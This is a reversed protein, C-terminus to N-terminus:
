QTEHKRVAGRRIKHVTFPHIEFRRAIDKYYEKSHYIELVQETTLKCCPHIEGMSFTGQNIADIMNQSKTGYCLNGIRNDLGNGNIHRVEIGKEQKGLFAWSILRHVAIPKTVKDQSTTTVMWYNKSSHLSQKKILPMVIRYGRHDGYFIKREESRVQGFSSASYLGSFEPILKWTEQDIMIIAKDDFYCLM